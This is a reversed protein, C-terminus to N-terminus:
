STEKIGTYESFIGFIVHRSPNSFGADGLVQVIREPPVCNDITDWYYQMLIKADVSRRFVRAVNPIIGKLYFKLMASFLPSEPKSIELILVKGGPKLVRLYEEFTTHLDAVHRLAYGMTLLDFYDDPFPLAEGLGQTVRRVGLKVAEALMGESPDLAIVEGQEGVINQACVSIVGTGAGVDLLRTGPQCGNRKLADNRYWRGSGFSMVDTIWDYHSASANFLADVRERREAENQYYGKLVPHPSQRTVKQRTVGSVRRM